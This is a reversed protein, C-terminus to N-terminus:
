GSGWGEPSEAAALRDSTKIESSETPYIKNCVCLDNLLRQDQVERTPRYWFFCEGM